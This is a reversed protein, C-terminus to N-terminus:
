TTLLLSVIHQVEEWFGINNKTFKDITQRDIIILSGRREYRRYREAINVASTFLIAKYMDSSAESCELTEWAFTELRGDAEFMIKPNAIYKSQITVLQGDRNKGTFDYGIQDRQAWKVDSLLLSRDGGFANLFLVTFLEFIDGKLKNRCEYIPKGTEYNECNVKDVYNTIATIFSPTNNKTFINSFEEQTNTRKVVEIIRIVTENLINSTKM